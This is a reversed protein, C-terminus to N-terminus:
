VKADADINDGISFFFYVEHKFVCVHRPLDAFEAYIWLANGVIGFLHLRCGLMVFVYREIHVACKVFILKFDKKLRFEIKFSAFNHACFRKDAPVM